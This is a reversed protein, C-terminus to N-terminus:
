QSYLPLYWITMHYSYEIASSLSTTFNVSIQCKQLCTSGMLQIIKFNLVFNNTNQYFSIVRM